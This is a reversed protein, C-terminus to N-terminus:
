VNVLKIFLKLDETTYILKQMQSVVLYQLTLASTSIPGERKLQNIIMYLILKISERIQALFLLNLRKSISILDGHKVIPAYITLVNRFDKLLNQFSYLIMQM